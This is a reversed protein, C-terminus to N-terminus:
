SARGCEAKADMVCQIGASLNYIINMMGTLMDDM